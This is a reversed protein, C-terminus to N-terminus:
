CSYIKLRTSSLPFSRTLPWLAGQVLLLALRTPSSSHLCLSTLSFSRPAWLLSPLAHTTFPRPGPLRVGWAPSNALLSRQNYHTRSARFLQAWSGGSALLQAVQTRGVNSDTRRVMSKCFNVCSYSYPVRSLGCAYITSHLFASLEEDVAM